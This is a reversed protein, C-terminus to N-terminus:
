VAGKAHERKDMAARRLPGPKHEPEIAAAHAAADAIPDGSRRADVRQVIQPRAFLDRRDIDFRHALDLEFLVRSAAHPRHTVDNIAAVHLIGAPQRQRFTQMVHALAMALGAGVTIIHHFGYAREFCETIALAIQM